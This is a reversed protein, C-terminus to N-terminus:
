KCDLFVGFSYDMNRFRSIVGRIREVVYGGEEGGKRGIKM